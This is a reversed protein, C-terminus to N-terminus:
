KGEEMRRRTRRMMYFYSPVLILDAGFWALIEAWMVGSEGMAAPLLLAGGTRMIFESIGSVMPLLTNGLGQVCSRTM